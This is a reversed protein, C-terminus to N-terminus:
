IVFLMVRAVNLNSYMVFKPLYVLVYSGCDISTYNICGAIYQDVQKGTEGKMVKPVLALTLSSFKNGIVYSFNHVPDWLKLHTIWEEGAAVAGTFFNHSM